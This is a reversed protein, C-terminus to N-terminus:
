SRSSDGHSVEGGLAAYGALDIWNDEKSPSSAIRALKLLSLMAAVDPATIRKTHPALGVARLYTTWLEGITDFNQQPTGYDDQRDGIILKNATELVETRM